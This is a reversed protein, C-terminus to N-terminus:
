NFNYFKVLLPKAIRYIDQASLYVILALILIWSGIHIYEKVKVPLPRGIIAEITYFLIQGGDLIPLPILNFVALSISILALLLLFVSFNQKIGEMILSIISLPGQVSSVDRKAFITKFGKATEKIYTNTLIIGQPIAQLIPLGQAKEREFTIGMSGIEKGETDFKTGFTIPVVMEQGGRNITISGEQNALPAILALTKELNNETNQNNIAILRDGPQLQAREAASDPVITQIVPISKPIGLMCLLIVAFYAFMLNFIIGGLLVLLKQYYPKVAFSHTDSAHADKQEGQGMEAAGAIEVYGGLPVASLTFETEGIKKTILRPGFGISFSPTRIKFLKCFLFHGLEHFGILFGLGALAAVCFALNHATFNIVKFIIM